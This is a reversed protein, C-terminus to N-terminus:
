LLVTRHKVSGALVVGVEAVDAVAVQTGYRPGRERWRLALLPVALVVLAPKRVAGVAGAVALLALPHSRKWFVGAQLHSRLEPHRRVVLALDRWRWLSRLHQPFSAPRVAHHVLGEPVWVAIGGAEQVRWALDTDEGAAMTTDFGGVRALLSRTVALNAAPFYPGEQDVEITRGFVSATQSDEPHAAVPGALLDGTAASLAALWGPAPACDDDTFAILPQQAARWGANRKASAGREKIQLCRLPLRGEWSGLLADVEPNGDHVVIVEDAALEQAQLAVLCRQLLDVRDVTPVVVTVGM